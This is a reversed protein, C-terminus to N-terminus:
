HTPWTSTVGGITMQCLPNSLTTELTSVEGDELTFNLREYESGVLNYSFSPYAGNYIILKSEGAKLFQESSQVKLQVFGAVVFSLGALVMGVVM